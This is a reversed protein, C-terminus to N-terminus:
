PNVICTSDRCSPYSRTCRLGMTIGGSCSPRLARQVRSVMAADARADEDSDRLVLRALALEVGLHRADGSVRLDHDRGERALLREPLPLGITTDEGIETCALGHMQRDDAALIREV